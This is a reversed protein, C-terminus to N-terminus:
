GPKRAVHVWCNVSFRSDEFRGSPCRVPMVEHTVWSPFVALSNHEPEIDIFKDSAGTTSPYLRLQGGSFRRPRAHFYYVGSLARITSAQRHPNLDIHRGYFGGDGHAILEIEVKEITIPTMSLATVVEPVTATVGDNLIAKFPGLDRTGVSIRNRPDDRSREKIGVRTPEFIEEHSLAYDLLADATADDLLDRRIFVPATGSVGSERM